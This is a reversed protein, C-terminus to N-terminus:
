DALGSTIWTCGFAKALRRRTAAGDLTGGVAGVAGARLGGILSGALAGGHRGSFM